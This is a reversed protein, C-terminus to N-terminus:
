SDAIGGRPLMSHLSNSVPIPFFAGVSLSLLIYVMFEPISQIGSNGITESIASSEVRKPNYGFEM